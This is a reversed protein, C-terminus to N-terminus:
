LSEFIFLRCLFSNSNCKDLNATLQQQEMHIHEVHNTNVPEYLHEYSNLSNIHENLCEHEQKQESCALSPQETFVHPEYKHTQEQECDYVHEHM